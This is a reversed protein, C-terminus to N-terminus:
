RLFNIFYQFDSVLKNGPQYRSFMATRPRWPLLALGNFTPKSQQKVARQVYREHSTGTEPDSGAIIRNETLGDGDSTDTNSGAANNEQIFKFDCYNLTCISDFESEFCQLVSVNPFQADEDESESSIYMFDVPDPGVDKDFKEGSRYQVPPVVRKHRFWRTYVSIYKGQM